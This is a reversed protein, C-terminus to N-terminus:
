HNVLKLAHRQKVGEYSLSYNMEKISNIYLGIEHSGRLPYRNGQKGSM